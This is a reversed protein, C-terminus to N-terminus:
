PTPESYREHLNFYKMAWDRMCRGGGCFHLPTEFDPRIDMDTLVGDASEMAESYVAIRYDVSNSSEHLYKGCTDCGLKLSM